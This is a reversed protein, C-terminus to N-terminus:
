WINRRCRFHEAVCGVFALGSGISVILIMGRLGAMDMGHERHGRDNLTVGEPDLPLALLFLMWNPLYSLNPELVFMAWFLSTAGCATVFMLTTNQGVEFALVRRVVFLSVASLPLPLCWILLSAFQGFILITIASVVVLILLGLLFSATAYLVEFVKEM